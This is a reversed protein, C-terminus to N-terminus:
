AKEDAGAAPRFGWGAAGFASLDRALQVVNESAVVEKGMQVRGVDESGMAMLTLVTPAAEVAVCGGRAVSELLRYAARRGIEEAPEGGESPSEADASFLCGNSSEAVLSLGFGLGVKRKRGPEDKTPAAVLAASGMDSFVYIDTVFRNLVGRAAEISRANNSGSVGTAYAVGRVRKVRGPTLLHLTKPLRVQHGFLLQVIRLEIDREIGFKQYLPLVATRVADVSIDGYKDVSSTIVGEGTFVINFKAKSFPALLCIPLLFYALGRENRGDVLLITGTYSIEIHSGNTVAELLRLFSIEHPQLGPNTPSKPRIGSIHIPRGLLTSLVLRSTLAQHGTFRVPPLSTSMPKCGVPPWTRGLVDPESYSSHMSWPLENPGYATLPLDYPMRLGVITEPGEDARQAPADPLDKGFVPVMRTHKEEQCTADVDAGFLEPWVLVGIEYSQIHVHSEEKGGRPLSGWAQTSLNASTLLAWDIKLNGLSLNEQTPKASYQIYTKIHPAAQGRGSRFRGKKSDSWQCLHPRLNAIQKLHAASQAKTHISGGSAYGDLSSAVNTGTPYIISLSPTSLGTGTAEVLNDLWGKNLTAISSVQAVLHPRPGDKDRGKNANRLVARLQPWGWLQESSNATGTQMKIKSPVSAVLAARVNAFSYASLKNTLDKCPKNYAKLYALLDQKFRSGSGIPAQADEDAGGQQHPLPGSRWVAQTMNTWDKALMNATHIIVEATEDHCFLVFMKSHHTGFQDPLYAKAANVNPWRACAEDIAIGNTDERRWSGHIIKVDVLHRVDPDFHQMTWDIDFCFNFIWAEKVLPNGLIDHLSVTDINDSAALDRITTLKFPSSVLKVNDNKEPGNNVQSPSSRNAVPYQVTEANAVETAQRKSLPPSVDRSLSSLFAARRRRLDAPDVTDDNNLKQRKYAQSM